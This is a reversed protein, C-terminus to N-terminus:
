YMTANIKESRPQIGAARRCGIRGAYNEEEQCNKTKYSRKDKLFDKLSRMMVSKKFSLELTQLYKQVHNAEQLANNWLYLSYLFSFDHVASLLTQAAGRTKITESADCLKETADIVKQFHKFM